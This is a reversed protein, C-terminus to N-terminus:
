WNQTSIMLLRSTIGLLLMRILYKAWELM